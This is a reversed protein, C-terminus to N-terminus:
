IDMIDHVNMQGDDYTNDMNQYYSDMEHKHRLYRSRVNNVLNRARTLLLWSSAGKKRDVFEAKELTDYTDKILVILTNLKQITDMSRFLETLETQVENDGMM